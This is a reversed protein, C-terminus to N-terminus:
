YSNGIKHIIFNSTALVSWHFLLFFQRKNGSISLALCLSKPFSFNHNISLFKDTINHLCNNIIAMKWTDGSKSNSSSIGIKVNFNHEPFYFNVVYDVMTLIGNRVIIYQQRVYYTRKLIWLCNWRPAFHSSLIVALIVITAFHVNECKWSKTQPIKEQKFHIQLELTTPQWKKLM